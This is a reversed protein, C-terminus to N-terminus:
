GDRQGDVSEVINALDELADAMWVILREWNEPSAANGTTRVWVVPEGPPDSWRVEGHRGLRAAVMERDLSAYRARAGDTSPTAEVGSWGDNMRNWARFTWGGATRKAKAISGASPQGFELGIDRPALVELFQTWYEQHLLQVETLDTQGNAASALEAGYTEPVIVETAGHRYRTFSLAVLTLGRGGASRHNVYQVIRELGSDIEDVAILLRFDGDRLRRQVEERCASEDFGSDPDGHGERLAVFPNAGASRTFESELTLLDAKWLAAAYDLVQGIVKRKIEDNRALKCEMITVSGSSGIGVLDVPGSGFRVERAYVVREDGLSEDLPLLDASSENLLQQLEAEDVFAATAMHEWGREPSDGDRILIPM